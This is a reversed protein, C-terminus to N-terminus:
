RRNFEPSALVIGVGVPRSEARAVALRLATTAQAGLAAVAFHEPDPLDGVLRAPMRMAWDIRAALRPPTVWDEAAEPWGDPGPPAHLRQGMEACAGLIDRKMEGAKMAVIEAGSIGLARCAACIFEFPQRLKKPLSDGAGATLVALAVSPIDGNSAIFARQIAAIAAPDPRDALFHVALKRAIHAATAPHAALDRLVESLGERGEESYTKGLVKEAGPEAWRPEYLASTDRAVTLGTMLKALERVDGQTYGGEVGLTHLEMLERALNENLGRGQKRGIPSNPGVSARQDLYILMAPHQTVAGLMDAFGRGINPRIADEVLAFPLYGPTAATFHDAFFAILRERFPEATDIARAFTHRFGILPLAGLALKAADAEAKTALGAKVDKQVAQQHAVLPAIEAMGPLPWHLAALDPGRLAAAIETPDRKTGPALPLGYGFALGLKEESLEMRGM